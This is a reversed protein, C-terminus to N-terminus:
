SRQYVLPNNYGTDIIKFGSIEIRDEQWWIYYKINNNLLEESIENGSSSKTLGYYKADLYYALILTSRWDLSSAAINNGEIGQKRLDEAMNYVDKGDGSIDYLNFIPFLVFSWCVLFVLIMSLSKRISYDESLIKVCLIGMILLLVDVFWLYRMEVIILSYGALYIFLGLTLLTLKNKLKNNSKFILFLALVIILISLISFGEIIKFIEFINYVMLALQYNFNRISSFPSWDKVKIYSPDDWVSTAYEDYPKMLGEYYVPSGQSGPGFIDYNYTGATGITLKDYKDSILGMWIGSIALFIMLGLIFNKTITNRNEKFRLWYDINVVMFHVIFFFFAFSKSLFALAGFFGSLVGMQLNSLYKNDLLFNMYFLLLTLVLLDPMPHSYAFYLTIPILIVFTVIKIKIGFKLKDELLYLGFFTFCGIILNLIKISFLAGLKGPWVMLFPVLLWSFLPSWYGNIAQSFHGSIYHEAVHIYSISDTYLLYLYNGILLIGIIFYVLICVLLVLKDM